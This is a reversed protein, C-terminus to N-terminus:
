GSSHAVFVLGFRESVALPRSPLSDFGFKFNADSTIPVPEGIKSFRYNRTPIQDGDLEETVEIVNTSVDDTEAM